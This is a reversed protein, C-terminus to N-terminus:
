HVGPNTEVTANSSPTPAQAEDARVRISVGSDDFEDEETTTVTPTKTTDETTTERPTSRDTTTPEGTPTSTPTDMETPTDTMTEPPPTPPPEPTPTENGPLQEGPPGGTLTTAAVAMGGIAIAGLLIAARRREV